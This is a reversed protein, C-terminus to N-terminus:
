ATCLVHHIYLRIVPFKSKFVANERMMAMLLFSAKTSLKPEEDQMSKLILGFGDGKVFEQQAEAFGRLLGVSGLFLPM